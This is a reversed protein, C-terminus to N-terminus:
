RGQLAMLAARLDGSVIRAPVALMLNVPLGFDEVRLGQADLLGQADRRLPGFLRAVRAQLAEGDPLYGIVPKGRAIAFGVEFCTGSDPEAGRFPALNALVADAADIMAINDAYIGAADQGTGDLPVLAEHGFRMCCERAEAAWRLADTRFVDPGALYLKM